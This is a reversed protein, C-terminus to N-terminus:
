VFLTSGNIKVDIGINILIGQLEIATKEHWLFKHINDPLWKELTNGYTLGAGIWDAVMEVIFLKPMPITELEGKRNPNLWHEPHHQNFQKHHHWAMEFGLDLEKSKFDHFAYGFSENASFKSIDHLWLNEIFQARDIFLEKFWKQRTLEIGAQYVAIKHPIVKQQFYELVNFYKWDDSYCFDEVVFRSYVIKTFEDLDGGCADVFHRFVQYKFAQQCDLRKSYTQVMPEYYKSNDM